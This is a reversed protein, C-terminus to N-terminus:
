NLLGFPWQAFFAQERGLDGFFPFSFQGKGVDRLIRTGQSHLM